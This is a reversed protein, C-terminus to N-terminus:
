NQTCYQLRTITGMHALRREWHGLVVTAVSTAVGNHPYTRSFAPRTFSSCTDGRDLPENSKVPVSAHFYCRAHHVTSVSSSSSSQMEVVDLAAASSSLRPTQDSSSLSLSPELRGAGIVVNRRLRRRVTFYFFAFIPVDTFM